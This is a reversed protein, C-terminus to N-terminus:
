VKLVEPEVGFVERIWAPGTGTLCEVKMVSEQYEPYNRPGELYITATDGCGKRQLVLIRTIKLAKTEM